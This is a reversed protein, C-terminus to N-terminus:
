EGFLFPSLKYMLYFYYEDFRVDCFFVFAYELYKLPNNLTVTLVGNVIKTNGRDVNGSAAILMSENPIGSFEATKDDHLSRGEKNLTRCNVLEFNPSIEQELRYKVCFFPFLASYTSITVNEESGGKLIFIFYEDVEFYCQVEAPIEDCLKMGRGLIVAINDQPRYPFPIILKCECSSQPPPCKTSPNNM